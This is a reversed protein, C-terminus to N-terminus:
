ATKTSSFFLQLSASIVCGFTSYCHVDVMSPIVVQLRMFLKAYQLNERQILNM